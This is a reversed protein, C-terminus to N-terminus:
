FNIESFVFFMESAIQKSREDYRLAEEPTEDFMKPDEYRVSLRQEAGPIFPCNDDAHSCTMVAAFENSKNIPHDFIKSFAKIPKEDDSYRVLYIPNEGEGKEIIFGSRELSAVARENFATEEVGGSFSKVPIGYAVAAVKAWVQSFQSRRSNHTCIFNLNVQKNQDLNSQIYDILPRLVNKREQTIKLKKIEIINKELTPYFTIKERHM